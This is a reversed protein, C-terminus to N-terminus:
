PKSLQTASICAAGSSIVSALVDPGAEIDIMPRNVDLRIGTGDTVTESGLMLYAAKSTDQDDIRVILRRRNAMPTIVTLTTTAINTVSASAVVGTEEEGALNKAMIPSSLAIFFTLVLLTTLKIKM